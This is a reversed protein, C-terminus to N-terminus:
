KFCKKKNSVQVNELKILQDKNAQSIEEEKERVEALTGELQQKERQPFM